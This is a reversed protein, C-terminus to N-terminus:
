PSNPPWSQIKGNVKINRFVTRTSAAISVANANSIVGIETGDILLDQGAVAVGYSLAKGKKGDIRGGVIRGDDGLWHIGIHNGSPGSDYIHPNNVIVRDGQVLMGPSHGKIRPSDITMDDASCSIGSGGGTGEYVYNPGLLGGERRSGSNTGMNIGTLCRRVTNGSVVIGVSGEDSTYIGSNSCDTAINNKIRSYPGFMGIGLTAGIVTCKDVVTRVGNIHTQIAPRVSATNTAVCKTVINDWVAYLGGTSFLCSSNNSRLNEFLADRTMLDAAFAYGTKSVIGAIDNGTCDHVHGGDCYSLSVGTDEVGEFSIASVEPNVAYDIRLGWQRASAGGGKIRFNKLVPRINPVVRTVTITGTSYVDRLGQTLRIRNGSKSAIIGLEGRKNGDAIGRATASFDETSRLLVMDGVSYDSADTLTILATGITLPLSSSVTTPSAELQTVEMLTQRTSLASFDFITEDGEGEIRMAGQRSLRRDSRYTGKPFKVSQGTDISWQFAAAIKTAEDGSNKIGFHGAMAPGFPVLGDVDLDNLVSAAGTASSDVKYTEGGLVVATGDPLTAASIANAVNRESLTPHISWLTSYNGPDNKRKNTPSYTAARLLFGLGVVKGVFLYKIITRRSADPSDTSKTSCILATKQSM